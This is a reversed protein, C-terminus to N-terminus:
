PEWLARALVDDGGCSPPEPAGAGELIAAGVSRGRLGPSMLKRLACNGACSGTIVADRALLQWNNSFASYSELMRAIICATPASFFRM